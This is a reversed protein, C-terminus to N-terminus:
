AQAPERKYAVSSVSSVQEFYGKRYFTPYVSDESVYVEPDVTGKVEIAANVPHTDAVMAQERKHHFVQLM